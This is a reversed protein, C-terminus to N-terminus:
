TTIQFCSSKRLHKKTWPSNIKCILISML